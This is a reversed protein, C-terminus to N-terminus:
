IIIKEYEVTMTDEEFKISISNVDDHIFVTQNVSYFGRKDEAIIFGKEKLESIAQKVRIDSYHFSERFKKDNTVYDVENSAIYYAVDKACPSLETFSFLTEYFSEKEKSLRGFKNLGVTM